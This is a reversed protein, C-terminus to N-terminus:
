AAGAAPRGAARPTRERLLDQRLVPYDLAILTVHPRSSFVSLPEMSLALSQATFPDTSAADGARSVRVDHAVFTLQPWLTLKTDSADLRYGTAAELRKSLAGVLPGAPVGLVAALAGALLVVVFGLVAIKCAKM